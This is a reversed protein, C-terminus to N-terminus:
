VKWFILVGWVIAILLQTWIPQGVFGLRAPFIFVSGLLTILLRDDLTAVLGLIGQREIGDQFRESRRIQEFWGLGERFFQNKGFTEQVSYNVVTM